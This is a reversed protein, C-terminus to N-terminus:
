RVGMTKWHKKRYTDLQILKADAVAPAWIWGRWVAGDMTHNIV